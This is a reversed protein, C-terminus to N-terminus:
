RNPTPCNLFLLPANRGERTLLLEAGSGTWTVGEGPKGELDEVNCVTPPVTNDVRGTLSDTAFTFVQGYTRVALRRADRSLSADTPTRRPSSGPVIPLSDLLTAVVTDARGWVSAPLTFVLSPRSVGASNKLRRKTIFYATGDPGVYMSEVDHPADPYRFVVREARLPGENMGPEVKPEDLQYLTVVPRVAGNDGVDGVYLCSPTASPTSGAGRVCPGPSAAEWDTNTANTVPWRGRTKGTTDLAFLVADNGSDNITFFVGANTVSMVAASMEVLDRPEDTDVFRIGAPKVGMSDAQLPDSLSKSLQRALETNGCGAVCALGLVALASLFGVRTLLSGFTHTSRHTIQAATMEPFSRCTQM